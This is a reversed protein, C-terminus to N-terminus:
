IKVITSYNINSSGLRTIGISEFPFNVINDNIITRYNIFEKVWEPTNVGTPIALTTVEKQKSTTGSKFLSTDMFLQVFRDYVDPYTNKIKGINFPTIYVKVVDITNRANLDIAELEPDRVRNWIISAKIGQIRMPDDYSSIAKISLPKYYDKKCDKLSQEIEKELLAIKEIIKTQNINKAMLIDEYLIRQLADKASKNMTSKNIPLGKIDMAHEQDQELIVGEKLEQNTAYNKKNNTLLARSFLYENKLYLLCKKGEKYSHNQKTFEVVYENCLNGSIYAIINIISYRLNNQPILVFPKIMSEMEIVEDSYFDYRLEKSPVRNIKKEGSSWDIELESINLTEGIMRDFIFRYFADFSVITSDTDSIVCVDKIMNNCRDIRDIYMHPYYVYERMLDQLTDLEVQIEKPVENPTLYPTELKRLITKILGIIKSNEMFAYLNNKYFLRNLNEQNLSKITDYIITADNYDPMWKIKGRRWDGITFMVKAFVMDVSVNYDLIQYDSYKRNPKENIINYIFHLVEELSGFKVNNAMFSEFFMTATSIVARGQATTSASVYLNYLISSANGMCGYISNNDRKALLQALNYKAVNVYDHAELYKFMEKKYADRSDTFDRIMDLLPHPKDGHQKFLVGYATCIPQKNNIFNAMKLLTGNEARQHTYNNDLICQTEKYRKEMSYKVAQRIDKRSIHPKLLQVLLTAEDEYPRYDIM